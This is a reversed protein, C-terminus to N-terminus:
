PLRVTRQKMKRVNFNDFKGRMEQQFSSQLAVFVLAKTLLPTVASDNGVIFRFTANQSSVFVCGM